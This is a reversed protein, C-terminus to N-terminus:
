AQKMCEDGLVCNRMLCFLNSIQIIIKGSVSMLIGGPIKPNWWCVHCCGLGSCSIEAELVSSCFASTDCIVFTIQKSHKGATRGYCFICWDRLLIRRDYFNGYFDLLTCSLQLLKHWKKYIVGIKQLNPGLCKTHRWWLMFKAFTRKWECVGFM